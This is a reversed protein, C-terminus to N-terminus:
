RLRATPRSRSTTRGCARGPHGQRRLDRDPRRDRAARGQARPVQGRARAQRRAHDRGGRGPAGMDVDGVHEVQKGDIALVSISKGARNAVARSRGGSQDGHGVAAARGRGHRDAGAARGGPRDRLGQQRARAELRRRGAGLEDRQDRARAERGAHDRSQDAARLDLEDAGSQRHGEPKGSRHRHRRDLDFGRGAGRVGSAPM